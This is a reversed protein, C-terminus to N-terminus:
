DGQRYWWDYSSYPVSLSALHRGAPDIQAVGDKCGVYNEYDDCLVWGFSIKGESTWVPATDDTDNFTLRQPDSGDVSMVYIENIAEFGAGSTSSSQSSDRESDFAIISGDPSWAPNRDDQPTDTLRQEQKGDLNISYIEYNGDRRSMFAISRSDPSWTPYEGWGHSLTRKGSGDSRMLSLVPETGDSHAYAIWKGDPSWAPSWNRAEPHNTLNRVEGTGADAVYIDAEDSNADPAHRFAIESGDPSWSPDFDLGKLNVLLRRHGSQPDMTFLRLDNRVSLTAVIRGPEARSSRPAKGPRVQSVATAPASRNERTKGATSHRAVDKSCASALTLTALM